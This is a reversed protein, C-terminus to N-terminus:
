HSCTVEYRHCSVIKAMSVMWIRQGKRRYLFVAAYSPEPEAGHSSTLPLSSASHGGAEARGAEPPRAANNDGRYLVPNWPGTEVIMLCGHRSERKLAHGALSMLSMNCKPFRHGAYNLLVRTEARARGGGRKVGVLFRDEPWQGQKLDLRTLPLLMYFLPTAM